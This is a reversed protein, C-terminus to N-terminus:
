GTERALERLRARALKGAATKPLADVFVTIRPQLHPLLARKCFADLDKRAAEGATHVVFAQVAEGQLEDPIGVVAAEIMGDFSVLVDEIEKMSTRYGACKLFDKARDVLVFFGDDDIKGLDGTHLAGSKFAEATAEPEDLYGLAINDGRAVLEGVEGQPAPSGDPRVIELSVGPIPRGITHAKDVLRKPDLCSLRATAETQGYMLWIETTPLREALERVFNPPLRGGAQQVYRLHPFTMKPLSSRRLLLQYTSPVGAFSTCEEKVMEELVRDAFMFKNSVVICAGARVHTFLVSAGFSYYFPLVAMIRDTERIPLSALISSTNAIVNEHSLVVGRPEGTSGSTFLVLAPERSGMEAPAVLADGGTATEADIEAKGFVHAGPALEQATTAARGEAFIAIPTARAIMRGLRTAPDGAPLPVATAGAFLAGILVAAADSTNASILAVRDGPKVGRARLHLAVAHVRRQWERHSLYQGQQAFAVADPRRRGGELLWTAANM